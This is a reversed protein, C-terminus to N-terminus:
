QRESSSSVSFVAARDIDDHLPVVPSVNADLPSPAVPRSRAGQGLPPVIPTWSTGLFLAPLLLHATCHGSVTATPSVLWLLEDRLGARRLTDHLLHRPQPHSASRTGRPSPSARSPSRCRRQSVSAGLRARLAFYALPLIALRCVVEELYGATMNLVFGPAVSDEPPIFAPM